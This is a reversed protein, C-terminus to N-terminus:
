EDLEVGGHKLLADIKKEIRDFRDSLIKQERSLEADREAQKVLEDAQKALEDAQKTLEDSQKALEDGQKTLQDSQKTLEGSQKEQKDAQKALEDSQKALEDNVTGGFTEVKSDIQKLRYKMDPLLQDAISTKHMFDGQAQNKICIRSAQRLVEKEGTLGVRNVDFRKRRIVASQWIYFPLAQVEMVSEVQMGLRHLKAKEQIAHIDDVALGVLLNMILISMVVLFLTFIIYTISQYFVATLFYDEEGDALTNETNLYNQSHFINGFDLEGIMMVFTKVFSYEIRHFPQQNMLLTYFALAFAVVFLILVVVFKMFTRFIDIFMIVYIGLVSFRRMFLILNIWALFVAVAGCQWQWALRINIGNHYEIGSLPLVLLIALLYLVWEILNGFCFYSRRQFYLQVVERIINIVALLFIIWNGIRGFFFLTAERFEGVWRDEGNAFWTVGDTANAFRVYYSPPIVLVYSTLMAVFLLYSVLSVWFFYRGVKNWKHNLLSAVLPHALLDTRQASVMINLPHNLAIDKSSMKKDYPDADVKLHEESDYEESKPTLEEDNFVSNDDSNCSTVNGNSRPTFSTEAQERADDGDNGDDRQGAGEEEQQERQGGDVECVDSNNQGEWMSFTDELLAYYFEVWYVPDIPRVKPDHQVCRDMVQEAVEPMNKILKRMPTTRKGTEEDLSWVSMVWLWKKHSVLLEAVDEHGNDIAHDLCNLGHDDRLLINAHKYYVLLKVMDTQGNQCALHLPTMQLFDVVNIEANKKLLLNVTRIWGNAAAFHLPVRENASSYNPQNVHAFAKILEHATADHGAEAAHHLATNGDDDEDHVVDKKWRILVLVTEIHGNKSADHIFKTVKKDSVGHLKNGERLLVEVTDAKNEKAAWRLIQAASNQNDRDKISADLKRQYDLLAILTKFSKSNAATQLPTLGEYDTLTIDAGQEMLYEAVKQHDKICAFHLPSLKNWNQNNIKAGRECLMKVMELHGKICAEHLPTNDDDGGHNIVEEDNQVQDLALQLLDQHGCRVAEHIPAVINRNIETLLRDLRGEQKGKEMIKSVLMKNGERVAFHLPTDFNEDWVHLKAGRDILMLAIDTKGNFCATVLATMDRQDECEINVDESELLHAATESNGHSAAIHLPTRGRSDQANGEAGANLLIMTVSEPKSDSPTESMREAGESLKSLRTGVETKPQVKEKKVAAALHLPQRSAKGINNVDAGRNVLLRVMEVNDSQAAYHLASYGGEDHENIRNIVDDAHLEAFLAQLNDIQGSIAIKVISKQPKAQEEEGTGDGETDESGDSPESRSPGADNNDTQQMPDSTQEPAAEVSFTKLETAEAM